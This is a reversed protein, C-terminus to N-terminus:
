SFCKVELGARLQTAALASGLPTRHSISAMASSYPTSVMPFILSRIRGAKALSSPPRNETVSFASTPSTPWRIFSIPTAMILQASGKIGSGETGSQTVWAAM